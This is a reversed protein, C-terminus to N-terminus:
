SQWWRQIRRGMFAMGGIIVLLLGLHQGTSGHVVMGVGWVVPTLGARIAARLRPRERIAVALPPSVTYYARMVTRGLAYSLLYQDRFIFCRDSGSSGAGGGSLGGSGGSYAELLDDLRTLTEACLARLEYAGDALAPTEHM